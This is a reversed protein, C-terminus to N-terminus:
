EKGDIQARIEDNTLGVVLTLALAIREAMEHMEWHALNYSYAVTALGEGSEFRVSRHGDWVARQQYMPNNHGFLAHDKAM